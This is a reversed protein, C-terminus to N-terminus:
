NKCTSLHIFTIISRFKWVILVIKGASELYIDSLVNRNVSGCGSMQSM